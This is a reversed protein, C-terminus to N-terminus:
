FSEIVKKRFGFSWGGGYKFYGLDFVKDTKEIINKKLDSLDQKTLEDDLNDVLVMIITEEGKTKGNVPGSGYHVNRKKFWVDEVRDFNSMIFKKLTNEKQNETILYKM